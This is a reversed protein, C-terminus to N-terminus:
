PDVSSVAWADGRLVLTIAGTPHGERRVEYRARRGDYALPAFAFDAARFGGARALAAEKAALAHLDEQAEPDVLGDLCTVPAASDTLCALFGKLTARASSDLAAPLSVPQGLAPGRGAWTPSPSPTRAGAPAVPSSLGFARNWFGAAEPALSLLAPEEVPGTAARAGPLARCLTDLEEGAIRIIAASSGFLVLVRGGRSRVAAAAEEPTSGPHLLLARLRGEGDIAAAPATAHLAAREAPAGSGGGAAPPPSACAGCLAAALVPICILMFSVGGARKAPVGGM